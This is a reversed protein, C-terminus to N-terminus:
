IIYIHYRNIAVVLLLVVRVQSAGLLPAVQLYEYGAQATQQELLKTAGEGNQRGAIVAKTAPTFVGPPCFAAAADTTVAQERLCGHNWPYVYHRSLDGSWSKAESYFDAALLPIDKTPPGIGLIHFWPGISNGTLYSDAIWVQGTLSVIPEIFVNYHTGFGHFM